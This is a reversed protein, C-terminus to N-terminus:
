VYLSSTHLKRATQAARALVYEALREDACPVASYNPFDNVEIVVPGKATQICDVGFLELGFLKRCKEALAVLEPTVCVLQPDRFDGNLGMAKQLEPVCAPKRVAWAQEGICYLKLDCGDGQIFQQALAVPEPWEVEELEHRSALLRIGRGNDGFVPKLLIPYDRENWRRALQKPTGIMTPPVPVGGAELTVAMEAKNHVAAIAARRNMTPIGQSEAWSLLCLVAWSRGRGVIFDLGELWGACGVRHSDSEPDIVTVEHGSKSLAGIMGSPQLQSLYRGEVVVGIHLQESSRSNPLKMREEGVRHDIAEKM